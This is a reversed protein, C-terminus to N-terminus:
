MGEMKTYGEPPTMDFKEDPVDVQEISIVESSVTMTVGMQNTTMTFYLPFGEVKDGMATTNPSIASIKDTVFMQMDMDQGNQKLTVIIQQCEYGLITKTEDGIKVTVDELDEKNPEISQMTYKKGQYPNEMLMLMQKTSGDIIMTIDGSMPNSTENRAKDGKFYSTSNTEGMSKLQTNMQENDSSITQTLTMIGVEIKEQANIMLSLLLAISLILIKKM